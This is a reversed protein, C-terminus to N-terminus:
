EEELEEKEPNRLEYGNPIEMVVAPYLNMLMGFAYDDVVEKSGFYLPEKGAEWDFIKKPYNEIKTVFQLGENFLLGIAWRCDVKAKNKHTKVESM